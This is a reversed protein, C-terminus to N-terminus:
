IIICHKYTLVHGWTSTCCRYAEVEFKSTSPLCGRSRTRLSKHNSFNSGGVSIPFLEVQGVRKHQAQYIFLATIDFCITETAWTAIDWALSLSSGKESVRTSLLIIESGDLHLKCQVHVNYMRTFRCTCAHKSGRCHRQECEQHDREFMSYRWSSHVSACNWLM